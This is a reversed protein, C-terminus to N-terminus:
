KYNLNIQNKYLNSCFIPSGLHLPDSHHGGYHVKSIKIWWLTSCLSGYSINHTRKTWEAGWQLSTCPLLPTAGCLSLILLLHLYDTEHQPWQVGLPYLELYGDSLLNPPGSLWEPCQPSLMKVDSDFGLEQGIRLGQWYVSQSSQIAKIYM